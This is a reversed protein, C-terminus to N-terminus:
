TPFVEQISYIKAPIETVDITANSHDFVLQENPNLVRHDNKNTTVEVKGSTLTTITKTESSYAKVNFKTGLVKVSLQQTEVTFPKVKNERVFFYAEGDLFVTRQGTKFKKPYRLNTGANIWVESSDPLFFHKTEGYLAQVETLKNNNYAYYLYGGAILLVPVLVAAIGVVKRRISNNRKRKIYGIKVNVRELAAYTNPDVNNKLENWYELSANAKEESYEDRMLWRQVREETSPSFRQSLFRKIIASIKTKNEM